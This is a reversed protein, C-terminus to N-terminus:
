CKLIRQTRPMPHIPTSCPFKWCPTQEMSISTTLSFVTRVFRLGGVTRPESVDAILATIDLFACQQQCQCCVACTVLPAPLTAGHCTLAPACTPKELLVTVKVPSSHFEQRVDQLHTVKCIFLETGERFKAKVDEFFKVNQQALPAFRDMEAVCNQHPEDPVVLHRKFAKRKRPWRRHMALDGRSAQMSCCAM